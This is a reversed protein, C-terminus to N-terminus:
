CINETKITFKKVPVDYFFGFSSEVNYHYGSFYPCFIVYYTMDGINLLRIILLYRGGYFTYKNEGFIVIICWIKSDFVTTM